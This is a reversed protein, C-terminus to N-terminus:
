QIKSFKSFNSSERMIWITQFIAGIIIKRKTIGVLLCFYDRHHVSGCILFCNNDMCETYRSIQVIHICVTYNESNKNEQKFNKPCTCVISRARSHFLSFCLCFIFLIKYIKKCLQSFSVHEKRHSM